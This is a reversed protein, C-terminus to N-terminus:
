AMPSAARRANRPRCVFTARIRSQRWDQQCMKTQATRPFQDWCERLITLGSVPDSGQGRQHQRGRPVSVQNRLVDLGPPRPDPRFPRRRRVRVRRRAGLKGGRRKRRDEAADDPAAHRQTAAGQRAAVPQWLRTNDHLIWHVTSQQQGAVQERSYANGHAGSWACVHVASYGVLFQSRHLVSFRALSRQVEKRLPEKNTLRRNLEGPWGGIQPRNRNKEMKRSPHSVDEAIARPYSAPM